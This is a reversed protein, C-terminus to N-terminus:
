PELAVASEFHGVATAIRAPTDRRCNWWAAFSLRKRTRGRARADDDAPM